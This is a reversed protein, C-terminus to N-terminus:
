NEGGVGGWGVRGREEGVWTVAREVPSARSLIATSVYTVVLIDGSSAVSYGSFPMNQWPSNMSPARHAMPSSAPSGSTMPEVGVAPKMVSELSM